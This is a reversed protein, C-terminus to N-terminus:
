VKEFALNSSTKPIGSKWMYFRLESVLQLIPFGGSTSATSTLVRIWLFPDYWSTPCRHYMFWSVTFVHCVLGATAIESFREAVSASSCFSVGEAFLITNVMTQDMTVMASAGFYQMYHQTLESFEDEFSSQNPIQWNGPPDLNNEILFNFHKPKGWEWYYDGVLHCWM